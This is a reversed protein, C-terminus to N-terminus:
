PSFECLDSLLGLWFLVHVEESRRPKRDGEERNMTKEADEAFVEAHEATPTLNEERM